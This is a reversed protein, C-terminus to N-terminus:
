IGFQNVLGFYFGCFLRCPIGRKRRFYELPFKMIFGDGNRINRIRNFKAICFFGYQGIQIGIMCSVGDTKRIAGSRICRAHGM